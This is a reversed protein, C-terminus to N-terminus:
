ELFYILGVHGMAQEIKQLEIEFSEQEVNKVMEAIDQINTGNVGHSLFVREIANHLDTLTKEPNQILMERIALLRHYELNTIDAGKLLSTNPVHGSVTGDKVKFM